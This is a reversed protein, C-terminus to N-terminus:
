FNRSFNRFERIARVRYRNAKNVAFTRGNLFDVIFARRESLSFSTLSDPRTELSSWYGENRFKGRQKIASNSNRAINFYMMLLETRSPLYWNACLSDPLFSNCVTAAYNGNRQTIIITDANGKAYLHDQVAFTTIYLGNYWQIGTHQDARACVLGRQRGASDIDEVFFVIGCFATDGVKYKRFGQSYLNQLDLVLLLFFIYKM